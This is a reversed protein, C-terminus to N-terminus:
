HSPHAAESETRLEAAKGEESREAALGLDLMGLRERAPPDLQPAVSEWLAHWIDRLGATDEPGPTRPLNGLLAEVRVRAESFAASVGPPLDGEFAAGVVGRFWAEGGAALSLARGAVPDAGAPDLGLRLYPVAWNDASFVGRPSPLWLWAHLMAIRSGSSTGARDHAPFQTEEDLTRHHDHWAAAGAPWDPPSEGDHLPLAWAVGALVPRGAVSVYSLVEPRAPDFVGDFVRGVHIWHEGMAPFDGGIRRYGALVAAAQDRYVATERRATELFDEQARAASPGVGM